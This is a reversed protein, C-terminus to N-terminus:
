NNITKDITLADLLTVKGDKNVDAYVTQAFSLNIDGTVYEQILTKDGADVKGDNNVDGLCRLPKTGVAVSQIALADAFNVKGDGNFDAYRLRNEDLNVMGLIYRQVIKADKETVKGDYDIDGIDRIPRQAKALKVIESVDAFTIKGDKNVDAYYKEVSDLRTNNRNEIYDKVLRADDTTIKGDFNVDGVQFKPLLGILMKELMAVDSFNIEGDRNMDSAEVNITEYGKWDVLHRALYMRDTADVRGDSNVDGLEYFKSTNATATSDSTAASVSITGLLATGLALGCCLTKTLKSKFM